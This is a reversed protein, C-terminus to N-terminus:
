KKKGKKVPQGILILLAGIAIAFDAINFIINGLRNDAKFGFYDVVYHKTVRDITNSIGGGLLLAYGAKQLNRGKKGMTVIFLLLCLVTLVLSAVAVVKPKKEGLDLFAGENHYKTLFMKDQLIPTREREKAIKEIIFKIALEVLVLTIVVTLYLM